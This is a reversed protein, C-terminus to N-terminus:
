SRMSFQTGKSKESIDLLGCIKTKMEPWCHPQKLVYHAGLEQCRQIDQPQSSGSLIIVPISSLRPDNALMECASLGDGAPMSIDMIILDPVHKHILILAHMADHATRVKLGMQQCRVTFVRCLSQDDDAILVEMQKM